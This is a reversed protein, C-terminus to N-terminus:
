RLINGQKLAEQLSLPKQPGQKIPEILSEKSPQKDGELIFKRERQLADESISTGLPVLINFLISKQQGTFGIRQAVFLNAQERINERHRRAMRTVLDSMVEREKKSLIGKSFQQVQSLIFNKLGAKTSFGFAKVDEDTMVGVEGALRSLLRTAVSRALLNGSNIIELAVGVKALAGRSDQVVKDKNFSKVFRESRKFLEDGIRFVQNEELRTERIEKLDLDKERLNLSQAAISTRLIAEISPQRTKFRNLLKSPDLILNQEGAPIAKIVDDTLFGFQDPNADRIRRINEQAARSIKSKPDLLDQEQQIKRTAAIARTPDRGAITAGVGSLAQSLGALFGTTRQTGTVPTSPLAPQLQVPQVPQTAALLQKKVLDNILSQTTPQPQVAAPTIPQPTIPQARLSAFVEDESQLMTFQDELEQDIHQQGDVM